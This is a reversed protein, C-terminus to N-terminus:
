RFEKVQFLVDGSILDVLALRRYKFVLSYLTRIDNIVKQESQLLEQRARIIDSVDIKGQEANIKMLSIRQKQLDIMNIENSISNKLILFNKLDYQCSSIAAEVQANYALESQRISEAKNKYQLKYKGWNLLPISMNIGFSMQSNYPGFIEKFIESQSNLGGGMSITVSPTGSAKIKKLEYENQINEVNKQPNFSFAVVRNCIREVDYGAPSELIDTYDFFLSFDRGDLNLLSVINSKAYEIETAPNSNRVQWLDIEADIYDERSIKGAYYLKRSKDYLYESLALSEQYIKDQEQAAYLDFFRSAIEELIGERQQIIAVSQVKDQAEQTKKDWKFSNLGLLNQSYSINFLNLNYSISRKPNFNDLRTLYSSLTMTGGTFPILQSVNLAINTNAYFRNVFKDSGDPQTVAIISNNMNPTSASLSVTPLVQIKFLKRNNSYIISDAANAEYADTQSYLDLVDDLTYVREQCKTVECHLFASLAIFIFVIENIKM